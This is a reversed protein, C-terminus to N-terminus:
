GWSSRPAVWSKLLSDDSSVRPADSPTSSLSGAGGPLRGGHEDYGPPVVMTAQRERTLKEAWPARARTNEEDDQKWWARQSRSKDDDNPKRRSARCVSGGHELPARRTMMMQRSADRPAADVYGQLCCRTARPAAGVFGQPCKSGEDVKGGRRM